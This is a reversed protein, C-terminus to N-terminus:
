LEGELSEAYGTLEVYGFGEILAGAREGSVTVSGEWYTFSVNLEQDALQPTVSLTLDLSPVRIEWAAPYVGGSHPSRWTGRPEIQFAENSLAVKSGDARIFSGKSFTDVSGDERRLIYVMMETGDDMQLAFWDWGVQGKSLASTSIERDMWSFGSVARETAGIRLV